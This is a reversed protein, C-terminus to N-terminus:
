LLRSTKIIVAEAIFRILPIEEFLISDDKIPRYSSAYRRTIAKYIKALRNALDKYIDEENPGSFDVTDASAFSVRNEAYHAPLKPHFCMIEDHLDHIDVYKQLVLALTEAHDDLPLRTADSHNRVTNILRDLDRKRKVSFDPKTLHERVKELMDDYTFEEFFAELIRYFAIFQSAPNDASLGFVYSFVLDTEYLRKPAGIDPLDSYRYRKIRERYIFANSAYQPLLPIDMAYAYQFLFSSALNNFDRISRGKQSEIRLTVYRDFGFRLADLLDIRSDPRKRLFLTLNAFSILERLPAWDALLHLFYVMYADSPKDIVYMIQNTEDARSFFKNPAVFVGFNDREDRVLLEFQNGTSLTTEDQEAQNANEIATTLRSKSLPLAPLQDMKFIYQDAEEEVKAHFQETILQVFAQVTLEM